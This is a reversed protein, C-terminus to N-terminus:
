AAVMWFSSSVAVTARVIVRNARLQFGLRRRALLKKWCHHLRLYIM